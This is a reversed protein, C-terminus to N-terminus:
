NIWNRFGASSEAARIAESLSLFYGGSANLTDKQKLDEFWLCYCDLERDDSIEADDECDGTGPFIDSQCIFARYENTGYACLGIKVITSFIEDVKM